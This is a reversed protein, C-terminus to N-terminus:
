GSVSPLGNEIHGALVRRFAKDAPSTIRLEYWGHTNECSVPVERSAGPELRVTLGGVQLTVASAGPNALRVVIRRPETEVRHTIEVSPGSASGAFERRFGNPGTLVLDYRGRIAIDRSTTGLVDAHWPRAFEGAYPYLALHASETGSNVATVSLTGDRAVAWGDLQYPLARAPRVGEEVLPLGPSTLAAPLWRGTFPPVPGPPTLRQPAAATSFDFAGTLDGSIQRRWPSIDPFRVGLWTELFRATSTHDFTQSCVYGGASWPSVVIMPVRMGLGIPHGDYFEETRDDPPLPPPVHDFQGDNEDYTLFLVTSNWVEPTSALADLIDHVLRASQVPSSENPHDCDAAAAVVYSVQPLTGAEVDARFAAALTGAPVRHLARDYLQRDEPPLAAVNEALQSLLDPDAAAYFSEMSTFGGPLVKMALDRFRAFYELNNDTFNDREQYVRWSHGAAQLIEGANSWTYGPHDAEYADNDVARRDSGPEFGSHGSFHYNRNPSTSGIVSCFYQDCITFTDALEYQLPVDRRDLYTMTAPGKATIWGDHWGGAVAVQGDTWSHPLSDLWQPDRGALRAAERLPFPRVPGGGSPQEFVSGGHRLTIANRDAFGRVGRLTGFYHDFSRNEQMLFVVHKIAALGGEPMPKALAEHVSPPLASEQPM